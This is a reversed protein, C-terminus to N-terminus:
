IGRHLYRMFSTATTAATQLGLLSGILTWERDAYPGPLAVFKWSGVQHSLQPIVFFPCSDFFVGAQHYLPPILAACILWQTAKMGSLMKERTEWASEAAQTKAVTVTTDGSIAATIQATDNNSIKGLLAVGQGLVWKLASAALDWLM